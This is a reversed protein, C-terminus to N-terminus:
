LKLKGEKESSCWYSYYSKIDAVEEPLKGESCKTEQLCLIDPDDYEFIDLCGKKLWARIGDVNWSTIKFNNRKGNANENSNGFDITDWKTSTQNPAPKVDKIAATTKEKVLTTDKTKKGDKKSDGKVIKNKKEPLAPPKEAVKRKANRRTEKGQNEDAGNEDSKVAGNEKLGKRKTKTESKSPAEVKNRAVRTIKKPQDEEEELNDKSLKNTAKTVKSAKSARTKTGLEM